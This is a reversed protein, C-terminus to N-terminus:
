DTKREGALFFIMSLSSFLVLVRAPAAARAFFAESTASWTQTALTTFGIPSLLLTSPLEKMTTLFVLAGGALLGPRVLPVTITRVVQMPTRGLGRAAEEIHPSIQLLSARIPGIAQPAFRVAYALILMPLTQYLWPVFNAAFFVLALATAIPPLAFGSFTVREILSTWAGPFRVSLIAIPLAGLVTVIAAMGSATLSNLTPQWVFAITEGSGM